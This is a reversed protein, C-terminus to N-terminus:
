SLEREIEKIRNSHEARLDWLESYKPDSQSMEKLEITEEDFMSKLMQLEVALDKQEEWFLDEPRTAAATFMQWNDLKTTNNGPYVVWIIKESFDKIIGLEAEGVSPVYWCRKGISESTLSEIKIM